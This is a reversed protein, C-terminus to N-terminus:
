SSTTTLTLPPHSVLTSYPCAPCRLPSETTAATTRVESCKAGRAAHEPTAYRRSLRANVQGITGGGANNVLVHLNAGLLKMGETVAAEAGEVTSADAVVPLVSGPPALGTYAAALRGSDRGTVVVRFGDAVLRLAIAMGIGEFHACWLCVSLPLPTPRTRQAHM